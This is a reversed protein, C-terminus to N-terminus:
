KKIIKYLCYFAFLTWFAIHYLSDGFTGCRVISFILIALHVGSVVFAVALLLKWIM